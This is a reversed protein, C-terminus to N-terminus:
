KCQEAALKAYGAIDDWHDKVHPNGSLIRSIKLSIMHLTEAQVASLKKWGVESEMVYKLAQSIRANENFDGHTGNRAQLIAEVTGPEALVKALIPNRLRVGTRGPMARVQEEIDEELKQPVGIFQNVDLSTREKMDDM